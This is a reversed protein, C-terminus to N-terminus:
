VLVLCRLSRYSMTLIDHLYWLRAFESAKTTLPEDFFFARDRACTGFIVIFFLLLGLAAKADEKGAL